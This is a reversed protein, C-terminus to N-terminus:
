SIGLRFFCQINLLIRPPPEPLEPTESSVLTSVVGVTMSCVNGITVESLTAVVVTGASVGVDTM